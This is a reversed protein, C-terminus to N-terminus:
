LRIHVTKSHMKKEEGEGTIGVHKEYVPIRLDYEELHVELEVCTSFSDRNKLVQPLGSDNERGAPIRM